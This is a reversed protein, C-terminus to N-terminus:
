DWTNTGRTILGVFEAGELHAGAHRSGYWEVCPNGILSGISLDTSGMCRLGALAHTSGM